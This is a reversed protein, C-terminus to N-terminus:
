IIKEGNVSKIKVGNNLQWIAHSGNKLIEEKLTNYCSDNCKLNSNDM